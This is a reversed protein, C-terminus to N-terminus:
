LPPPLRARLRALQPVPQTARPWTRPGRSRKRARSTRPACNLWSPLIQTMSPLCPAHIPQRDAEKHEKVVSVCVSERWTGRSGKSVKSLTMGVFSRRWRLLGGTCLRSVNGMEKWRSRLRVIRSRRTTSRRRVCSSGRPLLTSTILRNLLGCRQRPSLAGSRARGIERVMGRM